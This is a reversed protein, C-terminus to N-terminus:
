QTYKQLDYLLLGTILILNEIKEFKLCKNDQANLMFLCNLLLYFLSNSELSYLDVIHLNTYSRENEKQIPESITQAM